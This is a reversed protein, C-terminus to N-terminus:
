FVIFLYFCDILDNHRNIKIKGKACSFVSDIFYHHFSMYLVHHMAANASAEKEVGRWGLIGCNPRKYVRPDGQM